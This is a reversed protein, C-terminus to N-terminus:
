GKEEAKEVSESATPSPAVVPALHRYSYPLVLSEVRGAGSLLADALSSSTLGDLIRDGHKLWRRYLSLFRPDSFVEAAKALFRRTLEDRVTDAKKPRHEFYWRLESVTGSHLTTELEERVVRQYGDYTRDLPRPFVLRITWQPV